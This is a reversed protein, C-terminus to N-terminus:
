QGLSPSSSGAWDLIRSGRPTLVLSFIRSFKPFRLFLGTIALLILGIAPFFWNKYGAEAVDFVTEFYM